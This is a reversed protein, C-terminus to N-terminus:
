NLGDRPDVNCFYSMKLFRLFIKLFVKELEFKQVIKALSIFINLFTSMAISSVIAVPAAACVSMLSPFDSLSSETLM